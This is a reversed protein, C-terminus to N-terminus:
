VTREEFDFGCVTCVDHPTGFGASLTRKKPDAKCRPCRKDVAQRAPRGDPTVLGTEHPQEDNM